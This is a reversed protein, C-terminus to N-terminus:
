HFSFSWVQRASFAKVGDNTNIQVLDNQLDYHLDGSISDGEALVVTGRYWNDNLRNQAFLQPTNVFIAICIMLYFWKYMPLNTQYVQRQIVLNSGTYRLYSIKILKQYLM